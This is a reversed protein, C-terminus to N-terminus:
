VFVRSAILMSKPNWEYDSEGQIYVEQLNHSHSAFASTKEEVASVDVSLGKCIDVGGSGLTHGFHLSWLVLFHFDTEQLDVAM